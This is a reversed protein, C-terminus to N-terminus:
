FDYKITGKWENAIVGKAQKPTIFRLTNNFVYRTADMLHDHEKIIKGNLDRRYLTYERQWNQLTDFVKLKGSSLASFVAQIGGEVENKAPYFTLGLDRYVEMLKQGDVQSRGRAAPDIVGEMWKGRAQISHAHIVPEAQGVYHEDYLYIINTDPNRAAWVCATKNWGVDLAYLREYYDPIPFPKILIDDLPVPYVNGSGMAPTGKSRAERLHPPTDDLMRAKAEETLWPADDWGATIICKAVKRMAVRADVGTELELSEIDEKTVGRLGRSGALLDAKSFFNVILPTIGELPTFTVCVRGETTMTRILCENYIDHPAIEDLWIWHMSTGYFASLSQQYNKFSLTSMGGSKHRIEITDIGQPVGSLAWSKGMKELPILGTGWAGIPGLLEKQVTDRTSKADSGAAWARIPHDFTLGNWWFPYDGTLHAATAFAGALSKGVRNGACFLVETYEKTADFFVKHKPCNEISYPTNPVFWKDLGANELAANYQDVLKSASIIARAESGELELEPHM